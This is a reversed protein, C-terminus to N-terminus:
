KAKTSKESWLSPREKSKSTELLFEFYEKKQTKLAGSYCVCCQILVSLSLTKELFGVTSARYIAPLSQTLVSLVKFASFCAIGSWFSARLAGSSLLSIGGERRLKAGLVQPYPHDSIVPKERFKQKLIKQASHVKIKILLNTHVYNQFPVQCLRNM